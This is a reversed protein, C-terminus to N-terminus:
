SFVLDNIDYHLIVVTQGDYDGVNGDEYDDGDGEDGDDRKHEDDDDDDNDNRIQPIMGRLLPSALFLLLSYVTSHMFLKNVM